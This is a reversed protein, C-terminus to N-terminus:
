QSLTRGTVATVVVVCNKSVSPGFFYSAVVFVNVFAFFFGFLCVFLGWFM